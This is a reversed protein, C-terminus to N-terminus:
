WENYTIKFWDLNTLKTDYERIIYFIVLIKTDHECIMHFDVLRIHFRFGLYWVLCCGRERVAWDAASHWRMTARSWEKKIAALFWTAVECGSALFALDNFGLEPFDLAFLCVYLFHGKKQLRRFLPFGFIMSNPFSGMEWDKLRLISDIM